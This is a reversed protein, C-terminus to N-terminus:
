HWGINEIVKIGELPFMAEIVSPDIEVLPDTKKQYRMELIETLEEPTVAPIACTIMVELHGLIDPTIPILEGEKCFVKLQPLKM